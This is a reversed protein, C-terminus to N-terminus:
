QATAKLFVDPLWLTLACASSVSNMMTTELTQYYFTLPETIGQSCDLQLNCSQPHSHITVKNCYFYLGKLPFMEERGTLATDRSVNYVATFQLNDTLPAFM